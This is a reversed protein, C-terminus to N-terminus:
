ASALVPLTQYHTPSPPAGSFEGPLAIVLNRLGCCLSGELRCVSATRMECFMGAESLNAYEAVSHMLRHSLRFLNTVCMWTHEFDLHSINPEHLHKWGRTAKSAGPCLFDASAM